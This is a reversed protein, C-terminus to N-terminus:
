CRFVELAAPQSNVTRLIAVRLGANEESVQALFVSDLIRSADILKLLVRNEAPDLLARDFDLKTKPYQRLRERIARAGAPGGYPGPPAPPSPKATVTKEGPSAALLGAAAVIPLFLVRRGRVDPFRADRQCRLLM